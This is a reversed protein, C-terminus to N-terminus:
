PQGRIIEVWGSFVEGRAQLKYFYVGDPTGEANWDNNYDRSEYVVNGWRNTIVLIARETSAGVKLNRVEFRENADDGNPTFVNPIFISQDIPVTYDITHICGIADQITLLLDGAPVGTYRQDFRGTTNNISVTDPGVEYDFILSTPNPVTLELFTVYPGRGGNINNVALEGTPREPLSLTVEGIEGLLDAPIQLVASPDPDIFSIPAPCVSQTQVLELRFVSNASNLFLRDEVIFEDAIRTDIPVPIADGFLQGNQYVNLTFPTREEGRIDFLRLEPINDDDICVLEFDFSVEEPGGTITATKKMPCFQNDTPDITVNYIGSPLTDMEIRSGNYDNDQYIINTEDDGRTVILVYPGPVTNVVEFILSGNRGLNDCSASVTDLDFDVQNPSNIMLNDFERECGDEDRLTVIYVGEPLNEFTRDADFPRFPEVTERLLFEDLVELSVEWQGNPTSGGTPPFDVTLTGDGNGCDSIDAPTVDTEIETASTLTVEVQAPCQDGTPSEGVLITTTGDPLGNVTNDGLVGLREWSIGGNISYYYAGTSSNELSDLEASGTEGFCSINVESNPKLVARVTVDSSLFFSLPTICTDSGVRVYYEYRGFELSDFSPNNFQETPPLFGGIGTDFYSIGYTVQTQTSNFTAEITFSGNASGCAPRVISGPQIALTQLDCTVGGGCGSATGPLVNVSIIATTDRCTASTAEVLVLQGNVFNPSTFTSDASAPRLVGGGIFNRFVYSDYGPTAILTTSDGPCAGGPPDQSLALLPRLNVTLTDVATGCSSSNATVEIQQGASFSVSRFVRSTDSQLVTNSGIDRFIYSTYGQTAEISVTDGPCLGPNPSQALSLFPDLDVSLTDAFDGCVPSSAVVRILQGDAFNTSFYISDASDQLSVNTLVDFFEYNDFGPTAFLRVSDGPCSTTLSDQLLLVDLTNVNLVLTDAVNGCSTSNATVEVAQGDFFGTSVFTSLTDSQMVTNTAIDRFIYSDFGPKAIISISDGSCLGPDPSQDLTLVPVLNVVVSDSTTGCTSSSALVEIIQGNDFDTSFYISDASDQLVPGGVGDRFEYNDFGPTAFLRVSDGPCSTTLSDQLLLVEFVPNVNVELTDTINGCTTSVGTVEVAQGDSFGTSVFTNLTGFQMVTDTAIDRFVYFSFGTKAIISISDASCLGPDPSQDLTLVPVLNVVVSDSTTGCTSSSALVEIVQGNSLDTAFYISDASDQLVPGGIGDRFEYNDFGPTAFLRVSDGPCSTTLSDQLLVVQLNIDVELTDLVTGCATSSAEVEVAQGNSLGTSVFVNSGGSQLVLNLAIDRFTYTDYGETAEISISDGLCLGPDPSQSLSLVPRIDVVITDSVAGCSASSAVVAIAQGIDFIDSYTSDASNSQLVQATAVDIFEYTDFGSAIIEVSDGPCVGQPPDQVILLDIANIGITNSLVTGGTICATGTTDATMEVLVSDLANLSTTIFTSDTAGAVDVGNVRWQFTPSPGGNVPTATFTISDGPCITTDSASINVSTVLNPGVRIEIINSTDSSNTICTSTSDPTLIVDIDDLDNLGTAIFSTGTEGAVDVGNIRWQYTPSAGAEIASASFTATDGACIANPGTITVSATLSTVVRAAITDSVVISNVICSAATDPTMVVNVLTSDALGATAFTTGTEGPADVGNIRWQFTPSAGADQPSATFRITDSVCVPNPIAQISVSAVLATDIGMVIVNSVATDAPFCTLGSPILRVFVSDGDELLSTRFEPNLGDSVLTSDIFWEYFPNTGANSPTATFVVEDGRCATPQDVSLSVSPAPTFTYTFSVRSLSTNEYYDLVLEQNGELCLSITDTDFAQNVFDDLILAGDVYFRRGDNSGIAFTYEGRAFNKRMRFRVSLSDAYSGCINAGSLSGGGINLDFEDTTTNYFSQGNYTDIETETIFGRYDAAAFLVSDPLPGNGSEDFVYGIWTDNGFVTPDGPVPTVTVVASGTMVAGCTTATDQAAVTYTGATGVASFVIPNGDGAVSDVLVGDRFLDYRIDNESGDLGILTSDGACITATGTVNFVGPLPNVTISLVTPSAATCGTTDEYNIRIEYPAAGNWAVSLTSDNVGGGTVVDGGTVSWAYNVQAPQTTYVITDGFCVISDPMQFTPTPVPSLEVVVSDGLVTANCTTSDSLATVRYTGVAANNIVFFTDPHNLVNQLTAGNSFTFDFPPIGTFTFTVDPLPDGPCVAGGDNIVATPLPIELLTVALRNESVCSTITDVVQAFYQGPASPIFSTGNAVLTGGTLADFWEIVQDPGPADVGISPVASGACYSVSDATTTADLPLSNIRYDVRVVAECASTDSVQAFFQNNTTTVVVNAPDPVQTILSDSFWTFTHGAGGDISDQLDELNVLAQGSGFNDECVELSLNNAAPAPIETLTVEVRAVSTCNSTTNVIEAFYDGTASPTFTAGSGAFNGGVAADYWDVRFGTGPDDVSISVLASGECYSSDRPNVANVPLGNVTYDVRAVATCTLNDVLAFFQNATSTVLVNAPDPVLTVLSDSFWTITHGAGGDISDQLDVLNVNVQDSGFNDECVMLTLNNAEPLSEITYDVRAVASCTGDDVEAFFVSDPLTVIANAPDPVLTMLTSDSYWNFTLGANANISAQLATLDVTAQGSGAADECVSPTLDNVTPAPIVTVTVTDGRDEANAVCSTNADSLIQIFYDGSQANPIVFAISDYNNVFFVNSGAQYIFNLDLPTTANFTFIVNTSDNSCVTSSGDLTVTATPRPNETVTAAVRNVSVCLTTTNVIEAYFTGASDPTISAGNDVLNGGSAADYWDVRFGAGPDDVSIAPIVPSGPPDVACFASGTPNTADPPRPNVRVSATSDLQVQCTGRGALINFTVDSSLPGTPFNRQGNNGIQSTGIVTTGIRLSYTVGPQTNEVSVVTTGQACLSDAAAFVNLTPDPEPDVNVTALQLLEVSCTGNEVLVNFTTTTTLIGTPFFLTDGVGLLAIGVTSNDADNRLEYRYGAEPNAVRITTANGECITNDQPTVSLTSDPLTDVTITATNVLQIPTCAGNTATVNFTSDTTLAGTPLNITGNNGVVFTGIPANASNRLQYRVGTQSNQVQIIGGDGSCIQAQAAVVPLNPNPEPDVRVTLTDNMFISTCLGLSALVSISDLSTYGFTSPITIDIADGVSAGGPGIGTLGTPTGEVFIEYSVNEETQDVTIVIDQNECVSDTATSITFATPAQDDVTAQYVVSGCSSFADTVTLTYTGGPLPSGGNLLTAFDLTTTGLSQTDGSTGPIPNDSTIQYNLNGGGALPLSGGSLTVNIQADLVTCTPDDNELDTPPTNVTIIPESINFVEISDEQIGGSNDSLILFEYLDAPLGPPDASGIIVVPTNLPLNVATVIESLNDGFFSVLTAETDPAALNTVTFQVAGDEGGNCENIVEVDVVLGDTNTFTFTQALLQPYAGILLLVTWIFKNMGLKM